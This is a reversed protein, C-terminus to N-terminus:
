GADYKTGKEGSYWDYFRPVASDTMGRENQLFVFGALLL